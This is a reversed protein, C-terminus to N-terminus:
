FHYSASLLFTNNNATEGGHELFDVMYKYGVGVDFNDSVLYRVGAQAQAALDMNSYRGQDVNISDGGAGLGLYPVWKGIHYNLVVNALLPIQNIQGGHHGRLNNYIWGTELEPALTIEPTLKFGYGAVLDGRIGPETRLNHNGELINLGSDAGLYFGAGAAGDAKATTACAVLLSLGGVAALQTIKLDKM